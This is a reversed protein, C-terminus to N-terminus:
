GLSVISCHSWNVSAWHCVNIEEGALYRRLRQASAEGDKFLSPAANTM